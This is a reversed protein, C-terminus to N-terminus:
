CQARALRALAAALRRDTYRCREELVLRLLPTLPPAALPLPAPRAPAEMTDALPAMLLARRDPDNVQGPLVAGLRALRQAARSPLESLLSDSTPRGRLVWALHAAWIQRRARWPIARTEDFSFWLRPPTKLAYPLLALFSSKADGTEPERGAPAAAARRALYLELNGEYRGDAARAALAAATPPRWLPNPLDDLEGYRDFLGLPVLGAAGALDLWRELSLRAERPHLFTDAFRADNRLTDPGLQALRAALAPATAAAAELLRRGAALDARRLPDLGLVAFCRQLETIWQRAARNYVMLRLTGGPALVRALRALTTGPDRLHHLVGFVDAHAFSAPATRALYDDLDGRHFATRGPTLALRWRARRTSRASLDVSVVQRGFPEWQRVVYPLIEGGGGLLVAGRGDRHLSAQRGTLDAALRAAFAGHALYGDQWRPRALLPYRPYPHAEYLARVAQVVGAQEV